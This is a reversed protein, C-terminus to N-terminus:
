QLEWQCLLGAGRHLHAASGGGAVAAAAQDQNWCLMGELLYIQFNLGNASNGLLLFLFDFM